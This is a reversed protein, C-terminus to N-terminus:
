PKELISTVTPGYLFNLALCIISKFQPAPSSEQSNRSNCPSSVLWDYLFYVRFIRPLVSPLAGISQSGSTFLQSMPFSRSAPSSQLCFFLAASSSIILYCWLSLPYSNSCVRPSLSPCPLRSSSSSLRKLRPRSQAVVYVAAWWAGGDRPAAIWPTASDSM